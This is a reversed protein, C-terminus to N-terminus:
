KIKGTPKKKGVKMWKMAVIRNRYGRFVELFLRNESSKLLGTVHFPNLVSYKAKAVVKRNKYYKWILLVNPTPHKNSTFCKKFVRIQSLIGLLTASLGGTVLIENM